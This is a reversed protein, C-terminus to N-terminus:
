IQAGVIAAEQNGTRIAVAETHDIRKRATDQCEMHVELFRAIAGAHHHQPFADATM